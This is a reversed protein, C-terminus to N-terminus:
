LIRTHIYTNNEKKKQVPFKMLLRTIKHISIHLFANAPILIEKRPLQRYEYSKMIPCNRNNNVNKM